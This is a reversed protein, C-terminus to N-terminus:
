PSSSRADSSSLFNRDDARHKLRAQFGRRAAMVHL